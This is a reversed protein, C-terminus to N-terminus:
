GPRLDAAMVKAIYALKEIRVFAEWTEDSPLAITLAAADAYRGAAVLLRIEWDRANRLDREDAMGNLIADAEALYEPRPDVFSMVLLMFRRSDASPPTRDFHDQLAAVFRPDPALRWLYLLLLSPDGNQSRHATAIAEPVLGARAQAEAIHRILGQRSNPDSIMEMTSIARDIQGARVLAIVLQTLALPEQDVPIPDLLALAADFQGAAALAILQNLPDTIQAATAAADAQRGAEAQGVAIAALFIQRDLDTAAQEVMALAAADQGARAYAQALGSLDTAASFYDPYAAVLALAGAIDDATALIRLFDPLMFQPTQQPEIKAFDSLAAQILCSPDPAAACDLGPAAAKIQDLADRAGQLTFPGLAEGTILRVALDSGPLDTIIQDLNHNVTQLLDLREAAGGPDDAPIAGAANWAQVAGVFLANADTNVDAIAPTGAMFGALVAAVLAFSRGSLVAM